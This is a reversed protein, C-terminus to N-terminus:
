ARANLAVVVREHEIGLQDVRIGFRLHDDVRHVPAPCAEGGAVQVKQAAEHRRELDLEVAGRLQQEEVARRARVHLIEEGGGGRLLEISQQIPAAGRHHGASVRVQLHQALM